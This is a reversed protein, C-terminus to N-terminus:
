SDREKESVYTRLRKISEYIIDKTVPEAYTATQKEFCHKEVLFDKVWELSSNKDELQRKAERFYSLIDQKLQEGVNKSLSFKADPLKNIYSM